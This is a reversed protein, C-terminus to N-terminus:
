SALSSIGSPTKKGAVKFGVLAAEMNSPHVPRASPLAEPAVSPRDPDAGVATMNFPKAVRVAALSREERNLPARESPAVTMMSFTPADEVAEPLREEINSPARMGSSESVLTPPAAVASLISAAQGFRVLAVSVLTQAVPPNADRKSPHAFSSSTVRVEEPLPSRALRVRMNAFM